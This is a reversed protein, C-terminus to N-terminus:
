LEQCMNDFDKELYASPFKGICYISVIGRQKMLEQKKSQLFQHIRRMTNAQTTNPLKHTEWDRRNTIIKILSRIHPRKPGLLEPM